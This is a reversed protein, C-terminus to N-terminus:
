LRVRERGFSEPAEGTADLRPKAIDQTGRGAFFGATALFFRFPASKSRAKRQRRTSPLVKKESVEGWFRKGGEVVVVVLHKEGVSTPIQSTSRGLFFPPGPPLLLLKLTPVPVPGRPNKLEIRPPPPPPPPLPPPPLPPPPPLSPLHAFPTQKTRKGERTREKGPVKLRPSLHSVLFLGLPTCLVDRARTPPDKGEEEKRRRRKKKKKRNPHKENKGENEGNGGGREWLKKNRERKGKLIRKM